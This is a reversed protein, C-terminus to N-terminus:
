AVLLDSIEALCTVNHSKIQEIAWRHRKIDDDIGRKLSAQYAIRGEHDEVTASSWLVWAKGTYFRESLFASRSVTPEDNEDVPSPQGNIGVREAIRTALRHHRICESRILPFLLAHFREPLDIQKIVAWATDNPNDCQEDAIIQHISSM